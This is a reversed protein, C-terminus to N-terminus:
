KEIQIEINGTKECVRVTVNNNGNKIIINRSEIQINSGNLNASATKTQEYEFGKPFKIKFDKDEVHMELYDIDKKISHWNHQPSEIISDGNKLYAKWYRKM